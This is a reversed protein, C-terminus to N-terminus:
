SAPRRGAPYYWVMVTHGAQSSAQTIAAIASGKEGDLWTQILEELKTHRSQWFVKVKLGRTDMPITQM